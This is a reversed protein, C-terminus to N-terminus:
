RITIFDNHNLLVHVLASRARSEPARGAPNASKENRFAEALRALGSECEAQEAGTSRRGLIGEFAAAVFAAHSAPRETVEGDIVDAIQAARTLVMGSNTIALAQQPVITESRRYCEEVNPADFTTLLPIREDRTGRYYFSRRAGAEAADIPLDPGGMTTDLCKALFLLSDRVVEGEMRRANMRWVFHNDPDIRMNADDRGATSSQMRYAESTVILRHLHKLSWGSEILEMALWDLLEALEPRPARLGFDSMSSVLPEGFHRAWVHNVAVRAALPNRRGVIWRALALRRGTSVKPYPTNPPVDRYTTKARPFELPRPTYQTTAPTKILIEARQLTARADALRKRSDVLVAAAKARDDKLAAENRDTAVMVLARLKREARETDRAARVASARADAMSLSRQANSAARAAEAWSISGNARAGDDELREATLVAVLATRRAEAAVLDAEAVASDNRTDEAALRARELKEV